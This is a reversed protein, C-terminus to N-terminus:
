SKPLKRKIDFFLLKILYFPLFINRGKKEPDLRHRISGTDFLMYKLARFRDRINYPLLIKTILLSISNGIGAVPRFLMRRYYRYEFPLLRDVCLTNKFNNKLKEGSIYECVLMLVIGAVKKLNDDSREAISDFDIDAENKKVFACIDLFWGVGRFSHHFAFHFAMNIFEAEAELVRFRSGKVIIEVSSDFRYISDINYFDHFVSTRDADIFDWQLDLIVALSGIKKVFMIEHETKEFEDFPITIGISEIYHERPISYGNNLLISKVKDYDDRKIYLDIDVSYKIYDVDYSRFRTSLGKLFIHDIGSNDLLCAIEAATNDNVENMLTNRGATSKWLQIMKSPIDIDQFIGNIYIYYFFGAINQRIILDNLREPDLRTYLTKLRGTDNDELFTSICEVIFREESRM